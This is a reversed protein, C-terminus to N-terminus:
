IPSNASVFTVCLSPLSIEHVYTLADRKVSFNGLFVDVEMEEKGAFKEATAQELLKLAQDVRAVLDDLSCEKNDIDLSDTHVIGLDIVLQVANYTCFKVHFSLGQLIDISDKLLASRFTCIYRFGAQSRYAKRNRTWEWQVM